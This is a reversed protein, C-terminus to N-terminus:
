KEQKYKRRVVYDERRYSIRDEVFYALETAYQNLLLMDKKELNLSFIKTENDYVFISKPNQSLYKLPNKEILNQWEDNDWDKFDMNSKDTFDKANVSSSYFLKFRNIIENISTESHLRGDTILAKITPMKYLKTM